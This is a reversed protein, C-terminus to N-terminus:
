CVDVFTVFIFNQTITLPISVISGIQWLVGGCDCISEFVRSGLLRALNTERQLNPPENEDSARIIVVIWKM